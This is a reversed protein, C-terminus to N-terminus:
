WTRDDHQEVNELRNM